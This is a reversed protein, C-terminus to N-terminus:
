QNAAPRATAACDPHAPQQSISAPAIGPHIATKLRDEVSQFRSSISFRANRNGIVSFALVAKETSRQHLFLPPLVAM